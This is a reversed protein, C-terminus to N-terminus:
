PAFINSCLFSEIGVANVVAITRVYEKYLAEELSSAPHRVPQSHKLGPSQHYHYFLWPTESISGPDVSLNGTILDAAGLDIQSVWLRATTFIVPLFSVPESGSLLNKKQTFYDILGNLGRCVQTAAHEIEGRRSGEPEGPVSTKIEVAIHYIDGHTLFQTGTYAHTHQEKYAVTEMFATLAENATLPVYTSKAFCWDALAPNVRKCECVLYLRRRAHRLIFDVRTGQGQVEVPFESVTPLWPSKADLALKEAQKLVAYQFGYGHTNLVKGFSKAIRENETAADPQM